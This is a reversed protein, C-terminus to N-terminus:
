KVYWIQVDASFNSLDNDTSIYINTKNISIYTIDANYSAVTWTSSSTLNCRIVRTLGTIGHPAYLQGNNPLAGFNVMKTYVPKGNWQETTRYEVGAELPPNDYEDLYAVTVMNNETIDTAEFAVPTFTADVTDVNIAAVNRADSAYYIYIDFVRDAPATVGVKTIQNKVKVQLRTKAKADYSAFAVDVIGATPSKTSYSGGVHITASGTHNWTQLTGVKYWGAATLNSSHRLIAPAAGIEEITPLWTNPRAGVEEATPTWTNPRAGVQSATVGHPNNKDKTHSIPAKGALQAELYANTDANQVFAMSTTVDLIVNVVVNEAFLHDINGVNNGHADAFAFEKSCINGDEIYYVILGTIQSCDVPSRFVVETGDNINTNLNVRINM